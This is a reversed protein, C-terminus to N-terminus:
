MIRSKKWRRKWTNTRCHKGDKYNIIETARYELVSDACNERNGTAYIKGAGMLQAGAVAMLGVSDMGFVIVTDGIKSM